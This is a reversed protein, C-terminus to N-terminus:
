ATIAALRRGISQRGERIQQDTLHLDAFVDLILKEVLAAKAEELRVLREDLNLKAIMTLVSAARDMAREVVAVESRLQEGSGHTYRWEELQQRKQDFVREWALVRGALLKLELLPNEVAQINMRSVMAMAEAEILREAAKAKVHGTSGGHTNCVLGGRIAWKACRNGTRNSTAVCKQPPPKSM